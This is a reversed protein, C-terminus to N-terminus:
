HNVDSLGSPRPKHRMLDRREIESIL